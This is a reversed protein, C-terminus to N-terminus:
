TLLSGKPWGLVGGRGALVSRSGLGRADSVQWLLGYDTLQPFNRIHDPYCTQLSIPGPVIGPGKQRRLGPTPPTQPFPLSGQLFYLFHLFYLFDPFRGGSRREKM